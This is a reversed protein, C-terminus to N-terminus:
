REPALQQAFAGNQSLTIVLRQAARTAAGYLLRAEEEADEGALPMQGVGVLAVLAFELGRSTHMTMVKISDEHPALSGPERCLAHPLKFRGLAKACEDMDEPRRCIVAMAGWATGEGHAASLLTAVKIAEARLSPLRVILPAPGDRGCTAPAIRPIADDGADQAALLEGGILRATDFIQRSSRYNTHLVASRGRAQIGVDEFSLQRTLSRPYISQADDYLLLLRNSAADVMHVLLALWEPAFNHGEDILVAQYQGIPIRGQQVAQIVRLILEDLRAPPALGPAPLAQGHAQLQDECWQHFHRTHLVGERGGAQWGAALSAALPAHYCLVLIPKAGPASAQALAQAHYRLIATKGSGAAGHIVRHGEGLSRALQEQRLGMVGPTDAPAAPPESGPPPAGPLALRLPAFLHWRIRKIQAPSLVPGAPADGAMRWLRRRFEQADAEPLMEDQCLVHQPAMARALGAAEFQQRTIGTLVVGHGCSLLLKGQRPGDAHLLQADRKLDSVAQLACFRAQALPNMEVTTRGDQMIECAQATAQRLSQLTWDLTQLVLLGHRPHLLLFDPRLPRAGVPVDYWLLCYADLKHELRAALRREGPTMRALCTSLAPILIAM